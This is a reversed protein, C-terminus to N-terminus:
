ASVRTARAPVLMAAIRRSADRYADGGPHFHDLRSLRQPGNVIDSMQVVAIRPDGEFERALISDWVRLYQNILFAFQHHPVPNYGGLILIEAEPNIARVELVVDSVRALIKEAVEFPARMAEEQAGPREFLDNAGISLVIADADAVSKRVKPDALRKAVDRTTAGNRGLNETHVLRVGRNRLEGPVRAAIGGGSEDGAGYALSDGLTVVRISERAAVQQIQTNRAVQRAAGKTRVESSCGSLVVAAAVVAAIQTRM